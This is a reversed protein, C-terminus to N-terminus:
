ESLLDEDVDDYKKIAEIVKEATLELPNGLTPLDFRQAIMATGVVIREADLWEFVDANEKIFSNYHEATGVAVTEDLIHKALAARADLNPTEPIEVSYIKRESKPKFGDLTPPFQCKPQSKIYEAKQISIDLDNLFAVIKGQIALINDEDDMIYGDVYKLDTKSILKTM